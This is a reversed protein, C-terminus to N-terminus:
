LRTNFLALQPHDKSIQIRYSYRLYKNLLPIKKCLFHAIFDLILKSKPTLNLKNGSVNISHHYYIYMPKSHIHKVPAVKRLAPHPACYVTQLEGNDLCEFFSAFMTMNRNFISAMEDSYSFGESFNIIYNQNPTFNSQLDKIYDQHIADDNDLRTTIIHRIDAPTTESIKNKITPLLGDESYVPICFSINELKQIFDSHEDKVSPDFLVLWTFNKEKQALVSPLTIKEFIEIRRKM